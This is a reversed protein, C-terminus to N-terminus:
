KAQGWYRYEIMLRGENTTYEREKVFGNKEYFSIAHENNHADTELNIYDYQSFDVKAKLADILQTGIGHGNIKPEVCISALEVYREEKRVSDSKKFAWLLRKTFSPHRIVAVLSCIAFKPLHHKILGKFFRPYDNSYAIFGVITNSEEAVIIGSEMDEMYGKYLTKLFGTGLQTLFFEPFARKHLEAIFKINKSDKLGLEYIVAM